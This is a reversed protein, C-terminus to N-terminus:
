ALRHLLCFHYASYVPWGTDYYRRKEQPTVDGCGFLQRERLVDRKGLKLVTCLVGLGVIKVSGM